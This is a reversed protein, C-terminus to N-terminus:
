TEWSSRSWCPCSAVRAGGQGLRESQMAKGLGFSCTLKLCEKSISRMRVLRYCRTCRCSIHLHLHSISRLRALLRGKGAQRGETCRERPNVSRLLNGGIFPRAKNVFIHQNCCVHPCLVSECCQESATTATKMQRQQGQSSISCPRHPLRLRLGVLLAPRAGKLSAGPGQPLRRRIVDDDAAVIGAADQLASRLRQAEAPWAM